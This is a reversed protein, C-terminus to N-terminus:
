FLLEALPVACGHGTGTLDARGSWNFEENEGELLVATYIDDLNRGCRIVRCRLM